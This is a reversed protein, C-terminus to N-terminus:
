ADASRRDTGTREEGIREDALAQRLAARARHLRIAAANATCGLVVALERPQLGEWAVLRLLEQQDEPLRRLADALSADPGERRATRLEATLRDVAASRRRTARRQNALVNRAVGYLWPVDDPPAPVDDLRRWAVLLTEGVVDAADEPSARRLAYASLPRFARRHLDEFRAQDARGV